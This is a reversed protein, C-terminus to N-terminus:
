SRINQIPSIEEDPELVLLNTKDDARNKKSMWDWCFIAGEAFETMVKYDLTQDKHTMIYQGLSLLRFEERTM